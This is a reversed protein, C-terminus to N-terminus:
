GLGHPVIPRGLPPADFSFAEAIGLRPQLAKPPLLTEARAAPAPPRSGQLPSDYTEGMYLQRRGTRSPPSQAFVSAFTYGCYSNTSVGKMGNEMDFSFCMDRKECVASECVSSAVVVVSSMSREIHVCKTFCSKTWTIRSTTKVNIDYAQRYTRRLLVIAFISHNRFM